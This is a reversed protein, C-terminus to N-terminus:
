KSCSYATGLMTVSTNFAQPVTLVITDAGLQIANSKLENLAGQILTDNPFFLFSYWHGENGTVEGLYQCESIDFSGHIDVKVSLADSHVLKTPTTCGTLLAVVTFIFYLKNM